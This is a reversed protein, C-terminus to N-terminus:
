SNSPQPKDIRGKGHCEKCTAPYIRRDPEAPQEIKQFGTGNCAACIVETLVKRRKKM